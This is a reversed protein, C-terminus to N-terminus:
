CKIKNKSDKWLCFSLIHIVEQINNLQHELYVIGRRDWAMITLNVHMLYAINQKADNM